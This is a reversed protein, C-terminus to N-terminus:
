FRLNLFVKFDYGARAGIGQQGGPLQGGSYRYISIFIWSGSNTPRVLSRIDASSCDKIRLGPVNSNGTKTM